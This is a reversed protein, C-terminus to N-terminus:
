FGVSKIQKASNMLFIASPQSLDRTVVNLSYETTGVGPQKPQSALVPLYGPLDKRTVLTQDDVWNAITTKFPAQYYGPVDPQSVSRMETLILEDQGDLNIDLIDWIFQDKLAYQTQTSGAWSIHLYWHGQRYENYVLRAPGNPNRLLPHAPYTIRSEFNIAGTGGTHVYSFYRSEQIKPTALDVITVHRHIGCYPDSNNNGNLTDNLVSLVSCGAIITLLSSGPDKVVLGYNRGAAESNGGPLFPLDFQLQTPSLSEYGYQLFRGSTFFGFGQAQLLGNFIHSNEWHKVGPLVEKAASYESGFSPNSPYTIAHVVAQGLANRKFIWSQTSYTPSVAFTKFTDNDIISQPTWQAIAVISSAGDPHWCYDPIPTGMTYLLNGTAGDLLHLSTYLVSATTATQQGNSDYCYTNTAASHREVVFVDAIGDLNWDLSARVGMNALPKKWVIAGKVNSATVFNNDSYFYVARTVGASSVGISPVIVTNSAPSLFGSAAGGLSVSSNSGMGFVDSAASETNATAGAPAASTSEAASAAGPQQGFYANLEETTAPVPSSISIDSTKISQQCNQFFLVVFAVAVIQLALLRRM